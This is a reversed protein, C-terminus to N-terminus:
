RRLGADRSKRYAWCRSRKRLGRRAGRGHRVRQERGGHLWGASPDPPARRRRQRRCLSVRGGAADGRLGGGRGAPGVLRFKGGVADPGCLARAGTHGAARACRFGGAGTGRGAGADSQAPQGRSHLRRDGRTRGARSQCEHFCERPHRPEAEDPDPPSVDLGRLGGARDHAGYRIRRCAGRGPRRARQHSSARHHEPQFFVGARRGASLGHHRPLARRRCWFISLWLQLWVSRPRLRKGPRACM